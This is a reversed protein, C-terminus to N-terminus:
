LVVSTHSGAFSAYSSLSYISCCLVAYTYVSCRSPKKLFSLSIPPLLLILSAILSTLTLSHRSSVHGIQVVTVFLFVNIRRDFTAPDLGGQM